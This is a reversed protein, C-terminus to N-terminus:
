SRSRAKEAERKREAWIVGGEDLYSGDQVKEIMREALQAVQALETVLRMRNEPTNDVDVAVMEDCAEMCEELLHHSWREMGGKLPGHVADAEARARDVLWAAKNTGM